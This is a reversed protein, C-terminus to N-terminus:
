CWRGRRTNSPPPPLGHRQLVALLMTLVLVLVLVLVLLM